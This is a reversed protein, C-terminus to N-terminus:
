ESLCYDVEKFDSLFDQINKEADSDDSWVIYLIWNKKEGLLRQISNQFVFNLYAGTSSTGDDFWYIFTRKVGQKNTMLLERAFIKRNDVVRFSYSTSKEIKWGLAQQCYEPTHISRSNTNSPVVMLGIVRNEKWYTRTILKQKSYYIEANEDPIKCGTWDGMIYDLRYNYNSASEYFIFGSISLFLSILAMIAMASYYYNSELKVPSPEPIDDAVKKTREINSKKYFVTLIRAFALALFLKIIFPIIFGNTGCIQNITETVKSFGLIMMLLAPTVLMSFTKGKEMLAIAILLIILTM